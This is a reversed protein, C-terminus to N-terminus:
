EYIKEPPDRDDKPEQMVAEGNIIKFTTNYDFLSIITYKINYKELYELDRKCLPYKISENDINIEAFYKDKENYDVIGDYVIDSTFNYNNELDNKM